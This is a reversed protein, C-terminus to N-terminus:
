EKDVFHWQLLFCGSGQVIAHYLHFRNIRWKGRSDTLIYWASNDYGGEEVDPPGSCCKTHFKHSGPQCFVIFLSLTFVEPLPQSLMFFHHHCQHLCLSPIKWIILLFHFLRSGAVHSLRDPQCKADKSELDLHGHNLDLDLCLIVIVSISDKKM